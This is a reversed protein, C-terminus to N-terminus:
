LGVLAEIEHAAIRLHRLYNRETESLQGNSGPEVGVLPGAVTLSCEVRGDFGRLPVALSYMGLESESINRGYGVERIEDLERALEAGTGIGYGTPNDLVEKETLRNGLEVDGLALLLKGAAGLHAPVRKGVRNTVRMMADAEVAALFELEDGVLRAIHITAEVADKLKTMVPLAQEIIREVDDRGPSVLVGAALEYRVPSSTRELLGGTQLTSLLRHTTSTSLDLKDAIGSVGMPRDSAGLMKLIRVANAVSSLNKVM